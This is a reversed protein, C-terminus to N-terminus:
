PHGTASPPEAAILPAMIESSSSWPALKSVPTRTSDSSSSSVGSMTMSSTAGAAATRMAAEAVADQGPM